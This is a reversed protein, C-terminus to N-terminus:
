VPRRHSGGIISSMLSPTGPGTLRVYRSWQRKCTCVLMVAAVHGEYWQGLLEQCLLEFLDSVLYESMHIPYCVLPIILAVVCLTGVAVNYWRINQGHLYLANRKGCHSAHKGLCLALAFLARICESLHKTRTDHIRFVWPECICPFYVSRTEGIHVDRLLRSGHM